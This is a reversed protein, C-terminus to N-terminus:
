ILNQEGRYQGAAARFRHGHPKQVVDGGILGTPRHHHRRRNDHGYGDDDQERKHLAVDDRAQDRARGFPLRLRPRSLPSASVDLVPLHFGKNCARFCRHVTPCPLCPCPLSPSWTLLVRQAITTAAATATSNSPLPGAGACVVSIVNQTMGLAGSTVWTGHSSSFVS